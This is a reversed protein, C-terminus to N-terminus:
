VGLLVIFPGDFTNMLKKTFAYYPIWKDMCGQPVEDNNDIHRNQGNDAGLLPNHANQEANKARYYDIHEPDVPPENMQPM